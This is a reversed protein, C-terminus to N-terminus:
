WWGYRQLLVLLCCYLSCVQSLGTKCEDIPKGLDTQDNWENTVVHDIIWKAKERDGHFLTTYLNMRMWNVLVSGVDFVINKYRSM